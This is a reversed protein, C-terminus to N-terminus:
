DGSRGHEQRIARFRADAERRDSEEPLAQQSGRHIMEAQRRLADCMAESQVLTTIAAIMELLRITVAADDRAAQRIQDFAANVLGEITSAEVVVRLRGDEDYRYPSPVERAALVVLASGLRDICNIATFPDNVGPSLARM